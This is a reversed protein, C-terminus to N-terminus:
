RSTAVVAMTMKEDLLAMEDSILVASPLETQTQETGRKQEVFVQLHPFGAKEYRLLL